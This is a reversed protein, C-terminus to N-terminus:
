MQPESLVEDLIAEFQAPTFDMRASCQACLRKEMENLDGDVAMLKIMEKMLHKRDDDSEPLKVEIMGERIGTLATEFEESPINHQNAVDILYDIEEDTFKQDVAALNILNHFLQIPNM